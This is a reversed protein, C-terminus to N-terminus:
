AGLRFCFHARPAGLPSRAPISANERLYDPIARLSLGKGVGDRMEGAALGSRWVFGEPSAPFKDSEPTGVLGFDQASPLVRLAM